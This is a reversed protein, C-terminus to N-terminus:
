LGHSVQQGGNCCDDASQRQQQQRKMSNQQERLVRQRQLTARSCDPDMCGRVVSQNKDKGAGPDPNVALTASVSGYPNSATCCYAGEDGPGLNQIVLCVMGSSPEHYLQYKDSSPLPTKNKSWSIKPQPDGDVKAKFM